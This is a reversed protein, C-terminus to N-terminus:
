GIFDNINEAGMIQDEAVNFANQGINASVLIAQSTQM